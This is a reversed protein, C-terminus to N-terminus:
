HKFKHIRMQQSPCCTRFKLIIGSVIESIESNAKAYSTATKSNQPTCCVRWLDSTRRSHRIQSPKLHSVQLISAKARHLTQPSSNKLKLHSAKANSTTPKSSQLVCCVRWLRVQHVLAAHKSRSAFEATLQLVFPM